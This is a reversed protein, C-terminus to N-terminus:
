LKPRPVNINQWVWFPVYYAHLLNIWCAWALYNTEFSCKAIYNIFEDFTTSLLSSFDRKGWPTANWLALKDIFSLDITSLKNKSKLTFTNHVVLVNAIPM